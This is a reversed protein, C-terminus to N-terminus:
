GEGCSVKAPAMTERHGLWPELQCVLQQWAGYVADEGQELEAAQDDDPGLVDNAMVDDLIRLLHEAELKIAKAAGHAKTMPHPARAPAPSTHYAPRRETSVHRRRSLVKGDMGLEYVYGYPDALWGAFQADVQARQETSLQVYSRYEPM